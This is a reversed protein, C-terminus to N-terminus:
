PAISGFLGVRLAAYSRAYYACYFTCNSACYSASNSDNFVWASAMPHTMKCWCHGGNREAGVVPNGNDTLGYIYGGQSKSYNSSLCASIGSIAGYSFTTRWTGATNDYTNGTGGITPDLVVVVTDDVACMTTALAPLTILMGLILILRKM